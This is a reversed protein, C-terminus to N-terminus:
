FLRYDKPFMANTNRIYQKEIHTWNLSNFMKIMKDWVDRSPLLDFQKCYVKLALGYHRHLLAYSETFKYVKTDYPDASLKCMEEYVQDADSITFSPVTPATSGNTLTEDTIIVSSTIVCESSDSASLGSTEEANQMSVSQGDILECITVGKIVLVNLLTASETELIKVCERIDPTQRATNFAARMATLVSMENVALAKDALVIQRHRREWQQHADSTTSKDLARMRALIVRTNTSDNAM